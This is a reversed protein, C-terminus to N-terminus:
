IIARHVESRPEGNWQSTENIRGSCLAAALSYNEVRTSTLVPLLKICAASSSSRTAPWRIQPGFPWPRSCAHIHNLDIELSAPPCFLSIAFGWNESFKLSEDVSQLLVAVQFPFKCGSTSLLSYEFLLFFVRTTTNCSIVGHCSQANANRISGAIKAVM